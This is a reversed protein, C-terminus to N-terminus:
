RILMLKATCVRDGGAMRAVYIGTPAPIDKGDNGDWVVRHRGPSQLGDALIRVERGLPDFLSVRVKGSAPTEYGIVTSSNFPNPYNQDLHFDDAIGPTEKDAVAVSLKGINADIWDLRSSIWDKM